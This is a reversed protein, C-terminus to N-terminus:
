LENGAATQGDNGGDRDPTVGLTRVAVTGDHFRIDMTEPALLASTVPRGGSLAIAYGRRLTQQPGTQEFRGVVGQARAQLLSLRAQAAAHMQRVLLGQRALAAQLRQAPDLLGLRHQAGRLMAQKEELRQRANAYMAERFHRIRGLLEVASPVALEAAASPTPARVDAAFDALTVDTEHGVASVVPIPCAAIARVLTEENFAWLDELSGGGRGIIIVEVGPVQAIEGLARALDAAAGDGQVQAARLILQMAPFRRRTVTIIDHLVAGGGSTVIGVARPMLPLPKKLSADFLGEKQLKDRTKLFQEYLAGAGEAKMEEAYFQYSGAATYLGASGYLVVGLGDRPAFRLAQAYQRFMVCALRSNEDKLSFYLHGSTHRKFNSIEGRVGIGQLMPDGALTRRVYENLDSVSLPGARM